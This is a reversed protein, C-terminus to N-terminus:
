LEMFGPWHLYCKMTFIVSIVHICVYLSQFINNFQSHSWSRIIVIDGHHCPPVNINYINIQCYVLIRRANLRQLINIYILCWCDRTEHKQGCRCYFQTFLLQFNYILNSKYIILYRISIWCGQTRINSSLSQHKSAATGRCRTRWRPSRTRRSTRRSHCSTWGRGTGWSSVSIKQPLCEM